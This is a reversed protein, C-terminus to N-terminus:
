DDTSSNRTRNGRAPNTDRPGRSMAHDLQGTSRNQFPSAGSATVSLIRNIGEDGAGEREKAILYHKIDVGFGEVDEVVGVENAIASCTAVAVSRAYAESGM